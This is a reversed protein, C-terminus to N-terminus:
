TQLFMSALQGPTIVEVDSGGLHEEGETVWDPRTTPDPWTAQGFGRTSKPNATLIGAQLQALIMGLLDVCRALLETDHTWSEGRVKDNMAEVVLEHEIDSLGAVVDPPWGTWM